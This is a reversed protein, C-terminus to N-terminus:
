PKGQIRGCSYALQPDGVTGESGYYPNGIFFVPCGIPFLDEVKHYKQRKGESVVLEGLVGQAPYSTVSSSWSDQMYLTGKPGFEVSSGAYTRVYVLVNYNHFKIGM